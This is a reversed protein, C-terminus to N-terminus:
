ERVCGNIFLRWRGRGHESLGTQDMSVDTVRSSRPVDDFEGFKPPFKASQMNIRQHVKSRGPPLCGCTTIFYKETKTGDFLDNPKRAILQRSVTVISPSIAIFVFGTSKRSADCVDSIRM